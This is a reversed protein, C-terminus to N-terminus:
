RHKQHHREQYFNHHQPHEPGSHRHCNGLNRNMRMEIRTYFSEFVERFLIIIIWAGAKGAAQVLGASIKQAHQPGYQSHMNRFHAHDMIYLLNENLAAEWLKVFKACM